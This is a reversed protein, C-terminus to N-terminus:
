LLFAQYLKLESDRERGNLYWRFVEDALLIQLGLQM